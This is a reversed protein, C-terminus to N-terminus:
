IVENRQSPRDAESMLVAKWALLRVALASLYPFEETRGQQVAPDGAAEDMTECLRKGVLLESHGQSRSDDDPPASSQPLRM